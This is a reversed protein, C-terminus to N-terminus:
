HSGSEGGGDPNEAGGGIPNLVFQYIGSEETRNAEFQLLGASGKNAQIALEPEMPFSPTRLNATPGYVAADVECHLPRGVSVDGWAMPSKACYQVIELMMPLFSFSGAWDNWEQDVSTAIVISTGRGVRREVIAPSENADNFRAIVRIPYDSPEDEGPQSDAPKTAPSVVGVEHFEDAPSECALFALVKVQRLLEALAGEFSRMIPHDRDWNGFTTREVGAPTEHMEGLAVPLVGAGGRYLEANYHDTDVQDGAFVVLGGGGRVFDDLNRLAAPGLRAVNALIVVHFGSLETGELEQEDVVTLDNGSAARGAPRLATRLLYVEDRYPDNSSEGDVVLVQIVPAVDVAAVRTNDIRVVDGFREAGALEVRVFNAGERPFTVEVPERVVQGPPIRNILVPPLRNESISVSLEVQELSISSFNAVAAEFRAPVGAVCQPRVSRLETVAANGPSPSGVNMMVLKLPTGGRSLATLPAVVSKPKEGTPGVDSPAIWDSRQFDSVVYLAANAQSPWKAITNALAGIADAMHSRRQSPRLGSLQQRLREIEGDSLNKLAIMPESPSSTLMVTLTDNSSEDSAWRALQLTAECALELATRSGGSQGGGGRYGMSFSDDLLVIRETRPAAGLISAFAGPRVFPRMIMMAILFVALCRLFLLILQELRVRRRNRRQADLLFEMAAWRIRRFRRKSFIHILIPSAVAGAGVAMAPNMVFSSLWEFM